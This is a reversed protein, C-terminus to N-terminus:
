SENNIEKFDITVDDGILVFPAWFRPANFDESERLCKMARNVSVSASNGDKLHQYFSRMFKMTAEDNISRLTVLVSRAGAGLFARAIGVVGESSVEGQASHCCSLVVLKAHLKAAQVDSITLRFDQEEPRRYKREPNPALAIEGTEFKGHAAIHVLAVSGIRKLVEAKTPEKRTLPHIGLMAGIMEVEKKAFPLPSFRNEGLFTTFDELCPDGVLLAGSKNHYEKPSANILKMCMLSPLIRIRMSESLYKSESDLFAAFPALCLPGDPVVVLEGDEILNSIPSIICEHFLRLPNENSQLPNGTEEGREEAPPLEQETSSGDLTRNECIVRFRGRIEKYTKKRLCNLYDTADGLPYKVEKQTFQINRDKGIVWLNVSNGSLAVFLTPGSIDTVMESIGTKGEVSGSVALQSGYRRKILDLLAEARGQDAACLAEDFKSLKLLTRCLLQSNDQRANRFIIKSADDAQLVRLDNFIKNSRQYYDVAQHLDQEVLIQAFGTYVVAETKQDRLEKAMSLAKELYETAENFDDRRANVVGILAYALAESKRNGVHKAIDLYDQFFQMAQFLKGMLLWSHGLLISAALRILPKGAISLCQKAYKIAQNFDGLGHYASGLNNYAVEEGERDRLQEAISLHQKHYEIAKNFDGLKYYVSGLNSYASGEGARDGLQKAISLHQKHYEIAQNFDSLRHYASGLNNYAIGERDGLQEAISLHQKSYEIAQNFDGLKYSAFGLINYASGEGVRDGLQKAISLHQKHYEIAQNFDGLEDYASGLNNYASGEGARDGLQKAISLHQKHYEIAQNFDGLEYYALSLVNYAIGENESNGLEKANHLGQKMVEITQSLNAIDATLSINQSHFAGCKKITFALGQVSWRLAEEPTNLKLCDSAGRIIAKLYTPQLRYAATADRLSEQYNGLKFHVTARNNYLKAKLEKNGCKVKIGETYFQSANLFDGKLCVENGENKYVEVIATLTDDDFDLTVIEEEEEEKEEAPPTVDDLAKSSGEAMIAPLKCRVPRLAGKRNRYLLFICVL